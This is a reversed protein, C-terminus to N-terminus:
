IKKKESRELEPLSTKMNIEEENAVRVEPEPFPISEGVKKEISNILKRDM